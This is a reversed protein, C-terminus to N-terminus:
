ADDFWQAFNSDALLGLVWFFRLFFNSIIAYYYFWAPYMLKPRLFKKGPENSRLLGWDM